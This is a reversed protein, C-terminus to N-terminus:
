VKKTYGQIKANHKRQRFFGVGFSLYIAKNIYVVKGTLTKGIPLCFDRQEIDWRRKRNGTECGDDQGRVTKIKSPNANEVGIVVLMKYCDFHEGFRSIAAARECKEVTQYRYGSPVCYRKRVEWGLLYGWIM